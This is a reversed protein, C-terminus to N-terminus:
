LTPPGNTKQVSDNDEQPVSDIVTSDLGDLYPAFDVDPCMVEIEHRRKELDEYDHKKRIIVEHTQTIQTQVNKFVTESVECCPHDVECKQLKDFGTQIVVETELITTHVETQFQQLLSAWKKDIQTKAWEDAEERCQSGAECTDLLAGNEVEVDHWAAVTM